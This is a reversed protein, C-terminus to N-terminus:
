LIFHFGQSESEKWISNNRRWNTKIEMYDVGEMNSTLKERDGKVLQAPEATAPDILDEIARLVVM